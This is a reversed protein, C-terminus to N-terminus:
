RGGDHYRSPHSVAEISMEDPGRQTAFSQDVGATGREETPEEPPDCSLIAGRDERHSQYLSVYVKEDGKPRCCRKRGENLVQRPRAGGDCACFSMTDIQGEEAPGFSIGNMGHGASIKDPHSAIQLGLGGVMPRLRNLAPPAIRKVRVISM